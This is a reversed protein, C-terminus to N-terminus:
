PKVPAANTSDSTSLVVNTSDVSPVVNCATQAGNITVVLNTPLSAASVVPHTVTPAANTAVLSTASNTSSAVVPAPGRGALSPPKPINPKPQPGGRRSLRRHQERLDRLDRETENIRAMSQQAGPYKEDYESRLIQVRFQMLDIRETLQALTTLNTDAAPDRPKISYLAWTIPRRDGRPSVQVDASEGNAVIEFQGDMRGRWNSINRESAVIAVSRGRALYREVVKRQLAALQGNDKNKFLEAIRKAKQRQFPHPEDDDLVKIRNEIAGKEFINFPYLRYNGVYEIFNLTHDESFVVADPPLNKRLLDSISKSFRLRENQRELQPFTDNLNVGAVLLVFLGTAVAWSLHSKGAFHLFALACLFLPPFISMFFRDYGISNPAWYYATYLLLTPLIWLGLFVGRKIDHILLWALGVLGVPFTLFLCSNDMRTMMMRWNKNFWKWGFGTSEECLSYGNTWPSGYAVWHHIFLPAVTLVAVFGMLLIQGGAEKMARPRTDAPTQRWLEVCRWAVMVAAPIALLADTYRVTLTYSTLAAALTANLWGGNQFWRWLFFMGWTAFCISGSHSLASLAYYSNLPNTALLLAAFAGTLDNLIARGLFFIGVILLVALIPNVLFVASPGGLRYALACLMPYGIPYKAYYVGQQNEVMNGSVFEYPDGTCKAPNGHQTALLKATIMYGNEDVGQYAPVAYERLMVGYLAVIGSLAL